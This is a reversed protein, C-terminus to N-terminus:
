YWYSPGENPQSLGSEQQCIKNAIDNSGRCRQKGAYQSASGEQYLLAKAYSIGFELNSCVVRKITANANLSCYWKEDFFYEHDKETDDIKIRTPKQPLDIDLDVIDGTYDGNALYYIEEAATLSQVLPKLVAYRSKLVAKQYQPLAVAALIGIILVVVLLEILTFGNAQAFVAKVANKKM